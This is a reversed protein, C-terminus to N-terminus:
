DSFYDHNEEGFCELHYSSCSQEALDDSMRSMIKAYLNCLPVCRELVRLAVKAVALRSKASTTNLASLVLATTLSNYLSTSGTTKRL